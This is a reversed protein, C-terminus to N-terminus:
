PRWSEKVHSDLIVHTRTSVISRSARLRNIIDRLHEVDRARLLAIVDQDGATTYVATVEAIRSAEHDMVEPSTKGAFRLEVFASLTWGLKGYDVRASYGTIVGGAELREIRRKVATPSLAVRQAIDAVSRRGDDQLLALIELDTRDIDSTAM